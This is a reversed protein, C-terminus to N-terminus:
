EPSPLPAAGPSEPLSPEPSFAVAKASAYVPMEPHREYWVTESARQWLRTGLWWALLVEFLMFTSGIREAPIRLWIWFALALGMWALFSIRFYMWFLSGFNRFTLKFARALSRRIAPEQEAVTRVQAMDFWLRVAMMLLAVFLLGGVEVWFGLMEPAADESLTDSWKNIGSALFVLPGVVILLFLLLRVWRWFYLGCAQFFDAAPLKRNSRYTELIGGTLFLTFVFFILAFWLSDSTKAWFGVDPNSALEVFAAIDFGGILKQSNLSHDAVKGVRSAMPMTGFFALLCNVALIWWLIRQQRWVRRAGERMYM